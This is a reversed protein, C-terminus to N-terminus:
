MDDDEDDEEKDDEETDVEQDDDGEVDDIPKKFEENEGLFDTDDSM